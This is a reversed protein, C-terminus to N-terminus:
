SIFDKAKDIFGQARKETIGAAMVEALTSTALQRITMIGADNLKTETVKGIGSLLTVKEDEPVEEPTLIVEEVEEVEIEAPEDVAAAVADKSERDVYIYKSQELKTGEPDIARVVVRWRAYDEVDPFQFSFSDIGLKRRHIFLIQSEDTYIVIRMNRLENGKSINVTLQDNSGIPYKTSNSRGGHKLSLKLDAM